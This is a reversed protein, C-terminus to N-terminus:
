TIVSNTCISNIHSNYLYIVSKFEFGLNFDCIAKYELVMNDTILKRKVHM